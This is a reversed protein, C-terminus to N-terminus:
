HCAGLNFRYGQISTIAAHAAEQTHKGTRSGFPFTVTLLTM